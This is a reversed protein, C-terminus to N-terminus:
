DDLYIMKKSKISYKKADINSVFEKDHSVIVYSIIDTNIFKELAEIAKLDLYNTPEDLIILNASTTLVKALAVKVKEGGSLMGLKNKLQNYSFGLMILLNIISKTDLDSNININELISKNENLNSLDQAFYAIKLSTSYYGELEKNIIQKLFSTKGTKNRGTLIVKDGLKITFEQYNFLSKANVKVVGAKLRLLTIKKQKILKDSRKFKIYGEKEPKEPKEMKEIRSKISKASKSLSKSQSDYSGMKSNVKWDSTSINKKKKTLKQAKEKKDEFANNLQNVKKIYKNYQKEQSELEIQKQQRFENYNGAYQKILGNNIYFISSVTKNLFYRDHSVILVTGRFKNIQHILWDINDKDLNATPEDLILFDLNESLALKLENLVQEGGSKASVEKLQKVYSFNTNLEIKGEYNSDEGIIMRVLTSKGVGNEGVIGIRDGSNIILDSITFLENENIYKKINFLRLIEM